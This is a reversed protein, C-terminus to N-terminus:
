KKCLKAQGVCEFGVGGPKCKYTRKGFDWGPTSGNAMWAAWAGWDVAQLLAEDVQFKAGELSSATGQAAKIVCEKAAAPTAAVPLALAVAVAGATLMNHLRMPLDEETTQHPISRAPSHGLGPPKGM